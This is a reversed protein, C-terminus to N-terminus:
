FQSDVSAISDGPKFNDDFGSFFVLKGTDTM